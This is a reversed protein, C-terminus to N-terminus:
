RYLGMPRSLIRTPWNFEGVSEEEKLLVLPQLFWCVVM